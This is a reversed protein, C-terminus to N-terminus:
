FVKRALWCELGRRGHRMYVNYADYYNADMQYSQVIENIDRELKRSLMSRSQKLLRVLKEVDREDVEQEPDNLGNTRRIRKPERIRYPRYDRYKDPADKDSMMDDYIVSIERDILDLAFVGNELFPEISIENNKVEDKISMAADKYVSLNISSSDAVWDVCEDVADYFDRKTVTRGDRFTM